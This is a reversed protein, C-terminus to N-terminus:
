FLGVIHVVTQKTKIENKATKAMQSIFNKAM